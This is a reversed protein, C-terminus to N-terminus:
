RKPKGKILPVNIWRIHGLLSVNGTAFQDLPDARIQHSVMEANRPL